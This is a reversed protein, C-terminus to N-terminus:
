TIGYLKPVGDPNSKKVNEYAKTASVGLIGKYRICLFFGPYQQNTAIQLIFNLCIIYFYVICLFLGMNIKIEIELRVL